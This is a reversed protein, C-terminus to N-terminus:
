CIISAADSELAFTMGEACVLIVLRLVGHAPNTASGLRQKDDMDQAHKGAHALAAADSKVNWFGPFAAQQLHLQVNETTIQALPCEGAFWVCLTM